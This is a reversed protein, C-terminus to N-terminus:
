VTGELTPWLAIIVAAAALALLTAVTAIAGDATWAGGGGAGRRLRSFALSYIVKLVNNSATAILIAAGLTPMPLPSGGQALNLVFPDIDSVGVIAALGYLGGRGFEHAIWTSLLSIAM